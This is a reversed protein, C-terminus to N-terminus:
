RWCLITRNVHLEKWNFSKLQFKKFLLIKKNVVFYEYFTIYCLKLALAYDLKKFGKM